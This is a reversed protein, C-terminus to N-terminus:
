NNKTVNEIDEYYRDWDDQEAGSAVIDGTHIIFELNPNEEVINNILDRRIPNSTNDHSYHNTTSNWFGLQQRGDGLVVFNWKTGENQHKQSPNYSVVQSISLM